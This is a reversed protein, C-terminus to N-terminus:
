ADMAYCPGHQNSDSLVAVVPSDSRFSYKRGPNVGESEENEKFLRRREALVIFDRLTEPMCTM